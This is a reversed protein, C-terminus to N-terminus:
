LESDSCTFKVTSGTTNDVTTRESPSDKEDSEGNQFVQCHIFTVLLPNGQSVDAYNNHLQSYVINGWLVFSM